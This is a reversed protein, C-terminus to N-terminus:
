SNVICLEQAIKQNILWTLAVSMYLITITMTALMPGTYIAPIDNYQMVVLGILYPLFTLTYGYIIFKSVSVHDKKQFFYLWVACTVSYIAARSEFLMDVNAITYGALIDLNQWFYPEFFTLHASGNALSEFYGNSFAEVDSMWSLCSVFFIAAIALILNIFLTSFAPAIKFIRDAAFIYGSQITQKWYWSNAIRLGSKLRHQYEEDLDGLIEDRYYKPALLSTILRAVTPPKSVNSRYKKM